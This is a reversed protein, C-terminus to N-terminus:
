DDRDGGVTLARPAPKGIEAYYAVAIERLKPTMEFLWAVFEPRTPNKTVRFQGGADILIAALQARTVLFEKMHTGRMRNKNDGCLCFTLEDFSLVNSLSVDRALAPMTRSYCRERGSM